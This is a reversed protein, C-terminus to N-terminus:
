ADAAETDPQDDEGATTDLDPYAPRRLPVGDLNKGLFHLSKGVYGLHEYLPLVRENGPVVLLDIRRCGLGALRQEVAGILASAIGQGQHAPDVALTSLWCRRGEFAGWLQGVIQEGDLAVLLLEPHLAAQGAFEHAFVAPDYPQGFAAECVARSADLDAATQRRITFPM